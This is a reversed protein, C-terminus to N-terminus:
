HLNKFNDSRKEEFPTSRLELSICFTSDSRLDFHVQFSSFRLHPVNRFQLELLEDIIFYHWSIETIVYASHCVEQPSIISFLFVKTFNICFFLVIKEIKLPKDM